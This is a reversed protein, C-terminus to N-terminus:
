TPETKKGQRPDIGLRRLVARVTTSLGDPDLAAEIARLQCTEHYLRVRQKPTMARWAPSEMVRGDPGTPRWASLAEEFLMESRTMKM